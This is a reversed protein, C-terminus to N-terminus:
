PVEYIELLVNGGGGAVSNAQATYTGPPLTALVVSDASATNPLAFAGVNAAVQAIQPDGGWGANASVVATNHDFLKVQPDAMLGTVNFGALAPGIARVLVTRSSSGGVVFGATLTVGAGLNTLCSLNTLRPMTPTYTGPNADYCEALAQGDVTGNGSLQMTYGGAALTAVLAADLSTPGIPSFAGTAADAASVAAQNTGWNDDSAIVTSGSFVAISPDALVNAVNFQALSPGMGRLLLTQTGSTGAGGTFFGITVINAPGAITNVSLNILRGLDTTGTVALTAAQSTVSGLTNTATVTYSGANAASANFVVLRATTAGPVPVNNLYWQYSQAASATVAFVATSGATVTCSAPQQQVAPLPGKISDIVQRLATAGAYGYTNYLVQWQPGTPSNAVGNIIVFDPIYGQGFQQWVAGSDDAVLTLGANAIFADTEAPDSTDTSVSIVTVPVGNANGGQSAYYQAINKEVDPSSAQCPGCWYAFLDLVVIRGAYSSLQIPKGTVHNPITFDSAQSGALVQASATGRGLGFLAAAAAWSLLAPIPHIKM